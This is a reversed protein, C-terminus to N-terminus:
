MKYFFRLSSRPWGLIKSYFTFSFLCCCCLKQSSSLTLHWQCQQGRNPTRPRYKDYRCSQFRVGSYSRDTEKGIRSCPTSPADHLRSTPTGKGPVCQGLLWFGRRRTQLWRLSSRTDAPLLESCSYRPYVSFYTNNLPAYFLLVAASVSPFNWQLVPDRIFLQM